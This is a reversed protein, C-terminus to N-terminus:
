GNPLLPMIERIKSLVFEEVEVKGAQISFTKIERPNKLELLRKMENLCKDVGAGSGYTTFLVVTKAEFGFSREIYTRIAPAPGFAWVPTGICILDVGALNFSEGKIMAKKKLLARLAQAFFFRSEDIAQIDVLDVVGKKALEDRLIKAVKRTNGSFSYFIISSRM